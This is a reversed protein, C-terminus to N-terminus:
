HVPGCDFIAYGILLHQETGPVFNSTNYATPIITWQSNRREKGEEGGGKRRERREGLPDSELSLLSLQLRGQKPAWHRLSAYCYVFRCMWTCVVAQPNRVLVPSSTVPHKCFQHPKQIEYRREVEGMRRNVKSMRNIKAGERGEKGVERGELFIHSYSEFQVCLFSQEM